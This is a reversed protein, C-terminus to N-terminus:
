HEEIMGAQAAVREGVSRENTSEIVYGLITAFARANAAAASDDRAAAPRAPRAQYDALFHLTGATFPKNGHLLM